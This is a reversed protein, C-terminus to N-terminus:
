RGILIILFDANKGDTAKQLYGTNEKTTYEILKQSNEGSIIEIKVPKTYKNFINDVMVKKDNIIDSTFAYIGVYQYEPIHGQVFAISDATVKYFATTQESTLLSEIINDSVPTATSESSESVVKSINMDGETTISSRVTDKYDGAADNVSEKTEVQAMGSKDSISNRGYFANNDVETATRSKNLAPIISNNGFLGVLYAVSFLVLFAAAVGTFSRNVRKNFFERFVSGNAFYFIKSKTKNSEVQSTDTAYVVETSESMIAKMINATNFDIDENSLSDIYENKDSRLKDTLKRSLLSLEYHEKCVKCSSIHTEIVKLDSGEIRNDTYASILETYKPSCGCKENVSEINDKYRM